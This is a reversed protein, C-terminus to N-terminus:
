LRYTFRNNSLQNNSNDDDEEEGDDDGDNGDENDNDNNKHHLNDNIKQSLHLPLKLPCSGILECMSKIAKLLTQIHVTYRVMSNLKVLTCHVNRVTARKYLLLQFIDQLSVTKM